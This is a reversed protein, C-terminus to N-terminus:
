NHRELFSQLDDYIKLKINNEKLVTLIYEELKKAQKEFDLLNDWEFNGLLDMRDLAFEGQISDFEIQLYCGLEYASMYDKSKCYYEVRRFTYRSEYYWGALDEYNYNREDYFETQRNKMFFKRTTDILRHALSKIKDIDKEVVIDKCIEAFLEPKLSMQSVEEVFQMTGYSGGLFTGNFTAIAMSLYQMIGGASKRVHSMDNDFVMTKFINMAIDIQELSKRYAVEKDELNSKLKEQIKLFREEDEKTRSYLIVGKAFAFTIKEDLNAIGELREWSMPFLDYGMDEIIFTEALNYGKKTNPIFFDVAINQEDTPIKCAGKQGILLAVDEAYENKIKESAWKILENDINRM